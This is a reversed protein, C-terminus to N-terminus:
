PSNTALYPSHYPLPLEDVGEAAPQLLRAAIDGQSPNHHLLDYLGEEMLLADDPPEPLLATPFSFM